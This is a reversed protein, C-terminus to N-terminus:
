AARADDAFPTFDKLAAFEKTPRYRAAAEKAVRYETYRAVGEKWLQFSLYKYDDAPLLAQFGKRAAMYASLKVASIKERSLASRRHLAGSAASFQQKVKSREYPFPFNLMWMGTEDGRALGLRTVDKYFDPQSDQM